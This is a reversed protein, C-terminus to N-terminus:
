LDQSSYDWTNFIFFAIGAALKATRGDLDFEPNMEAIDVSCVKGTKLVTEIIEMGTEPTLGVPSAASVGPAYAASFVDLDISLYIRDTSGSLQDIAEQITPTVSSGALPQEIFAVGLEGATKYLSDSNADRRIGIVLYNFDGEKTERSIQYFPTGSNPLPEPIRLDFHADLNIIGPHMTRLGRYHSYAIEHGGGLLVPRAGLTCLQAVRNSLEEQAAEMDRDSCQVFGADWIAVGCGPPFPLKSLANLIAEPGKRAGARGMNRVVGEDCSFGLIVFDGGGIEVGDKDLDLLRIQEHLYERGKSSRGQWNEPNPPFYLQAM